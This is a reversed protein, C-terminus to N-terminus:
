NQWLVSTSGGPLVESAVTIGSSKKHIRLLAGQSDDVGRSMGVDILFIEGFKQFMTGKSRTTGDSFAVKGPQHGEVIHAAGVASAWTALVTAPDGGAAEWWPVPADLKYELISNSASLVPASFGEADVGARLSAELASLTAGGTNGAHAFFWDNVRAAFPLSRLFKGVPHAGSAVAAPSIGAANLEAVFEAAKSASPDALFEAEHNGLTIIVQGGQAAASTKLAELYAIVDLAHNWKDILDGTCVLVDKGGTWQASGPKSPVPALGASALLASMRDYDGHIDGLAWIDHTTDLQEIAPQRAWDRAGGSDPAHGSADAGSQSGADAPDGIPATGSCGPHAVALAALLALLAALRIRM